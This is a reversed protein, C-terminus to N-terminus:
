VCLLRMNGMNELQATIDNARIPHKLNKNETNQGGGETSLMSQKSNTTLSLTLSISHVSTSHPCSSIPSCSILFFLNCYIPSQKNKRFVRELSLSSIYM